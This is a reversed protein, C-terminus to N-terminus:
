PLEGPCSHLDICRRTFDHTHTQTNELPCSAAAPRSGFSGESPVVQATRGLLSQTLASSVGSTSIYNM